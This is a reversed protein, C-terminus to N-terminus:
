SKFQGIYVTVYANIENNLKAKFNETIAKKISSAQYLRYKLAITDSQKTARLQATFTIEELGIFPICTFTFGWPLERGAGKIDIAELESRSAAFNGTTNTQNKISEVTLTRFSRLSEKYDLQAPPDQDIFQIIDKYEEIFDIFDLQALSRNNFALLAEYEPEATLALAAKHYRWQPDTPTGHDIIAIATMKEANIFAVSNALDAHKSVYDAFEELNDTEYTGKFASPAAQLDELSQVSYDDPLIISPIYTCNDALFQAAEGAIALRSIAQVADQTLSM